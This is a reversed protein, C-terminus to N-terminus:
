RSYIFTSQNMFGHPINVVGQFPLCSHRWERLFSNEILEIEMCFSRRANRSKQFSCLTVAFLFVDNVYGGWLLYSIRHVLPYLSELLQTTQNFFTDSNLLMSQGLFRVTYSRAKRRLIVKVDPKVAPPSDQSHLKTLAVSHPKYMTPQQETPKINTPKIDYTQYETSGRSDGFRM